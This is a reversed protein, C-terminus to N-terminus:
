ILGLQVKFIRVIKKGDFESKIQQHVFLMINKLCLNIKKWSHM